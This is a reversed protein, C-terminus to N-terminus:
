VNHYLELTWSFITVYEIKHLAEFSEASDFDMTKTQNTFLKVTKPGRGILCFIIFVAQLYLGFVFVKSNLKIQDFCSVMM